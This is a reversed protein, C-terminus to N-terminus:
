RLCVALKQRTSIAELFTTHKKMLDKEILSLLNFYTSESMRFYQNFRVSDEVLEKYLTFYEGEAKRQLLSMYGFGKGQNGRRKM